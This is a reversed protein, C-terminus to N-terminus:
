FDEMTRWKEYFDSESDEAQCESGGGGKAAMLISVPVWSEHSKGPKTGKGHAGRFHGRGAGESSAGECRCGSRFDWNLVVEEMFGEQIPGAPKFLGAEAGPLLM